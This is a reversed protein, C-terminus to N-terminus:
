LLITKTNVDAKNYPLTLTIIRSKHIIVHTAPQCEEYIALGIHMNERGSSVTGRVLVTVADLPKEQAAAVTQFLNGSETILQLFM